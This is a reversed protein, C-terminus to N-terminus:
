SHSLCVQECRVFTNPMPSSFQQSIIKLPNIKKLWVLLSGRCGSKQKRQRYKRKPKGSPLYNWSPGLTRAIDELISHSSYYESLITREWRLSMDMLYQCSYTTKAWCVTCSLFVHAFMFRIFWLSHFFCSDNHKQTGGHEGLAVSVSWIGAFCSIKVAHIAIENKEM